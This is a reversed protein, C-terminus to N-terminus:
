DKVIQDLPEKLVRLNEGLLELEEVLALLKDEVAQDAPFELFADLIVDFIVGKAALASGPGLPKLLVILHDEFACELM